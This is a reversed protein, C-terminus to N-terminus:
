ATTDEKTDDNDLLEDVNNENTDDPLLATQMEGTLIEQREVYGREKGRTKLFFISSAEKGSRINRFLQSEVFDIALDQLAEVEAAYKPDEKIWEYHTKRNIKAKKCADTVVGLSKELASIMAKKKTATRQQPKKKAPAKKKVTTKKKTAPKKRTQPKKTTSRKTVSKKAM